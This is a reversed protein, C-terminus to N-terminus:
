AAGQQAVDLVAEAAQRSAGQALQAHIARYQRVQREAYAPRTLMLQTVGALTGPTAVSQLLEPTAPDASLLNPLSVHPTKLLGADLLLWATFANTAYAVVMPRKSLLAELTATGSAIMVADCAALVQAAQGDVRQVRVGIEDAQQRFLADVRANAMPAVCHLGPIRQQLLRAAQLFRPGLLSVEAGRSGPLLALVRATDGIGLAARAGARDPEMPMTDALHHGVFRVPVGSDRYFDAEFPLLCLMCDVARAIGKIRGRRWAWVSPSVYHVTRIGRDRLRRELGINFDPADIGVVVDPKRAAIEDVLRKRLSLLRPVERLVEAIGMVSLADISEIAECGAAQMRPGAVGFCEVDPTQARLAEILGAGLTDGSAEGAVLAINM